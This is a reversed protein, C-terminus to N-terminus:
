RARSTSESCPSPLKSVGRGEHMIIQQLVMRRGLELLLAHREHWHVVCDPADGGGGLGATAPSPPPAVSPEDTRVHVLAYRRADGSDQEVWAAWTDAADPNAAAWAVNAASIKHPAGTKTLRGPPQCPPVLIGGIWVGDGPPPGEVHPLGDAM